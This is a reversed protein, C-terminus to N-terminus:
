KRRMRSITSKRNTGEEHQKRQFNYSAKLRNRFQRIELLQGSLGVAHDTNGKLLEATSNYVLYEDRVDLYMMIAPNQYAKALAMTVQKDSMEGRVPLEQALLKMLLRILLKRM